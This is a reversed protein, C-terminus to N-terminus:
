PFSNYGVEAMRLEQGQGHDDLVSAILGLYAPLGEITGVDWTELSM